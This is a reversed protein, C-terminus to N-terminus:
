ARTVTYPSGSGAASVTADSVDTAHTGPVIPRITTTGHSTRSPARDRVARAATQVPPAAHTATVTARTTTGSTDATRTSM